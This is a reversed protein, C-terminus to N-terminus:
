AAREKELYGNEIGWRIWADRVHQFDEDEPKTPDAGTLARLAWFWHGGKNKLEELVLKTILQRHRDDDAAMLMISLYAKSFVIRRLSSRHRIERHWQAVLENFRARVRTEPSQRFSLEPFKEQIPEREEAWAFAPGCFRRHSSAKWQDPDAIRHEEHICDEM